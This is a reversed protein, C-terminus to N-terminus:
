PTLKELDRRVERWCAKSTKHVFLCLGFPSLSKSLDSMTQSPSGSNRVGQRKRNMMITMTLRCWEVSVKPWAGTSCSYM